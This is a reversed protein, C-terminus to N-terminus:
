LGYTVGLSFSRGRQYREAFYYEDKFPYARRVEADLLNKASAKLKLSPTLAVDVVADVAHFPLEYINPTGGLTVDSIRRGFVNYFLGAQLREAEYGIEANIVFPSQGQLPRRARAAPDFARIKILEEQPIATEAHTLTLNGGTHFGSLFSAFRDLGTRFEIEAGYVRADDVNQYRTEFNDNIITREIPDAFRKYFVSVAAVEGPRMFWEWRLDLNDIISRRLDPNGSLTPANIFSFTTFPALERFTPRAITRGYAARLNMDGLEYVLNLSPLLDGNDLRADAIAKDRSAVHIRALEYRAGAIVRIGLPTTIDVMGYAAGVRQDGRYNNRPSSADVIYNAIQYRYGNATELSDVVGVHAFYDVPDGTYGGNLQYQFRRENFDRDRTDWAGGIKVQGDVEGLSLPHELNLSMSWGGEDMSRFYRSPATYNSLAIAYTTDVRGDREWVTYDNAFFRHDPEEHRTISRSASWDATLRGFTSEGSLQLSQLRRETFAIVRSELYRNSAFNRPVSGNLYRAESTGGQNHMYTLGVSHADSLRYSLTALGGWLVESASRTDTLSQQANLESVEAVRGTLLYTASTGDAYTNFDRDYTISGLFGLPRGFFRVENGITLGYSQDLPASTEWPTMVPTFSRALEDVQRALQPDQRARIPSVDTLAGQSWSEPIGRSGDDMGMWDRTGGNATLFSGNLSTRTNFGVSSKLRLVFAEPFAMTGINIMGGTATGPQDPTFTKTTVINDLLASPFLDLPLANRDPDASPMSAGNLQVGTYRGGLGRVYAYRGDVVTTGTVKRLADTATSGGSRSIAEASIADSVAAAMRRDRLMSAENDRLARAEVTVEDLGISEPYLRVNVETSEEATVSVGSVVLADYGIFSFRIDYRGPALGRLEYRGEFDSTTGVTTGDISVNAGILTEGTEDDIISGTISGTQASAPLVILVLALIVPVIRRSVPQSTVLPM